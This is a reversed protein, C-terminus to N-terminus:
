KKEENNKQPPYYPPIKSEREEKRKKAARKGATVAVAIVVAWFLLQPSYTVAWVLFDVLGEGIDKLNGTFGGTIRQWVTPEEVETYVEVQDVYLYVTAYSVKNSLVRLQSTVSELEYRVETLREEIELLDSMTEAKAMLELLREQETELAAMRSETAVYTLTVDDTSENYTVVNSIGRIQSVFGNLKDAPIRITMTASRSRYSSYASGNYLEQSEIYGGMESIQGNLESLMTDLDETEADINVKKILKQDASVTSGTGSESTTGSYLVEGEMPAEAEPEAMENDYGNAVADASEMSSAGCATLMAALMTLTLLLALLKKGKM